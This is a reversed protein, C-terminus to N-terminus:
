GAGHVKAGKHSRTQRVQQGILVMVAAGTVLGVLFTRWDPLWSAEQPGPAAAATAATKPAAAQQGPGSGFQGDSGANKLVAAWAIENVLSGAGPALEAGHPRLMWTLEARVAPGDNGELKELVPRAEAWAQRVVQRHAWLEPPRYARSDVLENMLTSAGQVDAQINLLEALQWYLRNDFPLWLLLQVVLPVRELPLKDM